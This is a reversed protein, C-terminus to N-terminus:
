HNPGNNTALTYTKGDLTFRGKAIRNGYRGVVPGFFRSRTKYGELDDQGLVIDGLRGARDPVRLSILTAGYSIVRAEIGKANTLTFVDVKQGDTEGFGARTVRAKRANAAGAPQEAFLPAALLTALVMEGRRNLRM